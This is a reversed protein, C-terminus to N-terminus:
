PRRAALRRTELWTRIRKADAVRTYKGVSDLLVIIVSRGDIRTKMVLCRGAESIYGTKQLVVDWNPNSVLTNTNHFTLMQKGVKVTLDRDTSYQNILKNKSAASVLRALDAPTAVNGSSLGTPDVFRAHQMGLGKAKANMAAVFASLGGPYNRGLAHAARNESSMLALKLLVARSLRTGVALRSYSGRETDRDAVTIQLIEAMPQEAELVVLATMLKTISAIPGAVDARRAYLIDANAEDLVLAARSRVEPSGFEVRSERQPRALADPALSEPLEQAPVELGDNVGDTITTAALAFVPLAQSLVVVVLKVIAPLRPISRM